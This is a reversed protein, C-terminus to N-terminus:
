GGPSGWGSCEGRLGESCQVCHVTMTPNHTDGELPSSSLVTASVEIHEANLVMLTVHIFSLTYGSPEAKLCNALQKTATSKVLLEMKLTSGIRMSIFNQTNTFITNWFGYHCLSKPFLISRLSDADTVQSQPCSTQVCSPLLGKVTFALDLSIGKVRTSILTFSIPGSPVPFPGM